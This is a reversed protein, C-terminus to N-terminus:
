DVIRPWRYVQRHPAFRIPVRTGPRPLPQGGAQYTALREALHALAAERTDGLGPMQPWGAIQALWPQVAPADPGAGAQQRVTVPYDALTWTRKRFSLLYKVICQWEM